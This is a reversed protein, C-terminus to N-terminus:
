LKFPSRIYGLLGKMFSVKRVTSVFTKDYVDPFSGAAEYKKRLAAYATRDYINWYEEPTYYSYSYLVKRGGLSAVKAEVERNVEIFEAHSNAVPGGWIGVNVVLKTNLYNPSLKDLEAPKLPCLWLPYIAFKDNAYDLFKSLNDEPLCIDQILYRQALGSTHLFQYLRRTKLFGSFLVRAVRNFPIKLSGFGNKAVWFAGKDYRFLYDEVPILEEYRNSLRSVKEAHLYFWEDTTKSFTAHPLAQEHSYTGTMIIGDMPSLMIGDVFDFAESCALKIATQAETFSNVREYGLRVYPKAPRLGVKVATMVGLSGYSCATGWFLDSNETRSASIIRGDGLLMEYQLCTDHFGGWKFSSSEGSGGQVAGGVTIGPFEAVVSPVLGCKLSAQVLKDLAVNPEVLAYNERINIELIHNLRSTDVMKDREITLPRTLNTSGRYVRVQQGRARFNKLSLSVAEVERAHDYKEPQTM